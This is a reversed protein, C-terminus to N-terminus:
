DREPNSHTKRERGRKRGYNTVSEGERKRNKEKALSKRMIKKKVKEKNVFNHISNFVEHQLSILISLFFSGKSYSKLTRLYFHM